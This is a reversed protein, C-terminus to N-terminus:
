IKKKKNKKNQKRVKENKYLGKHIKLCEDLHQGHENYFNILDENECIKVYYKIGEYTFINKFNFNDKNKPIVVFHGISNKFRSYIVKLNDKNITQFTHYLDKWKSNTEKESRFILVIKDSENETEMQKEERARKKSLLNLPPLQTNNIRRVKQNKQDFEIKKSLKIGDILDDIKWGENKIKNCHLLVNLHIYGNKNQSILNHFYYDSKLNEDSFYYEIQEKIMYRKKYENAENIDNINSM